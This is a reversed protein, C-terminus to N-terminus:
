SKQPNDRQQLSDAPSPNIEDNEDSFQAYRELTRKSAQITKKEEVKPLLQVPGSGLNPEVIEQKMKRLERINDKTTNEGMNVLSDRDAPILNENKRIDVVGAQEKEM